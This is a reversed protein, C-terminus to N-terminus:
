PRKVGTSGGITPAPASLHRDALRARLGHQAAASLPLIRAAASLWGLWSDGHVGRAEPATAHAVSHYQSATDRFTLLFVPQRAQCPVVLLHAVPHSWRGCAMFLAECHINTRRPM